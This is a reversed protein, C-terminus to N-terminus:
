INPLWQDKIDKNKQKLSQVEDWVANLSKTVKSLESKLAKIESQHRRSHEVAKRPDNQRNCGRRRDIWTCTEKRSNEVNKPRLFGM